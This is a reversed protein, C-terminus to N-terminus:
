SVVGLEGDDDQFQDHPNGQSDDPLEYSPEDDLPSGYLPPNTTGHEIGFTPPQMEHEHNQAYVKSAMGKVDKYITKVVCRFSDCHSLSAHDEESAGFHDFTEALYQEKEAIDHELQLLQLKMMELMVLEDELSPTISHDEVGGGPSGSEPVEAEYEAEYRVDNLRTIQVPALQRFQVSFGADRVRVDDIYVVDFEILQEAGNDGDVCTFQWDATIM